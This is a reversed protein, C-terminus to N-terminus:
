IQVLEAAIEMVLERLKVIEMVTPQKRETRMIEIALKTVTPKTAIEEMALKRDLETPKAAVEM